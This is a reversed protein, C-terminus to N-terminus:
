GDMPELMPGQHVADGTITGSRGRCKQTKKVWTCNPNSGCQIANDQEKCNEPDAEKRQFSKKSPVREHVIRKSPVRQYVIRKSPTKKITIRKVTRKKTAIGRIRVSRLHYKSRLQARTLGNGSENHLFVIWSNKKPM